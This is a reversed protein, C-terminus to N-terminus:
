QMAQPIFVRYPWFIEEGDGKWKKLLWYKSLKEHRELPLVKALLNQPEMQYLSRTVMIKRKVNM